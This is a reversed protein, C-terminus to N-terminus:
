TACWREPHRCAAAADCSIGTSAATTTGNARGPRIGPGHVAAEQGSPGVHLRLLRAPQRVEGCGNGPMKAIMSGKGHVVEDHSIPLIFNESWAYALGFTMDHHHYKRYIPDKEIYRLTDNMWGMNWKFGFGLGGQDVPRSVGPFATSEEAVTMIGPVEGYTITNMRRLLAIAEYNERGGDVNPVWEGSKRSYDRYLMSAVADVRLGDVHFEELWYLANSILFNAVEIRGYNYILTNWDQHFGESRIPM